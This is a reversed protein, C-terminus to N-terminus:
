RKGMLRLVQIREFFFAREAVTEASFGSESFARSRTAADQRDSAVLLIRGGVALRRRAEPLFRLVVDLGTSGGSLAEDLPGEVRDEPATPVYPPNFLVLDFPGGFPGFLDGAAVDISVGNAAANEDTLRVARPNRDTAAVRAGRRAAEIAVLGTGCGIEIAREGAQADLASLLLWTDDSPPYVDPDTAYPLGQWELKM